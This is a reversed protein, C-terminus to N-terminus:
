YAIPLNYPYKDHALFALKQYKAVSDPEKMLAQFHNNWVSDTLEGLGRTDQPWEDPHNGTEEAYLPPSKEKTTPQFDLPAYADDFNESSRKRSKTIDNLPAYIMASAADPDDYDYMSCSSLPSTSLSPTDEDEEQEM